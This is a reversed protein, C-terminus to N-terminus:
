HQSARKYEQPMGTPLAVLLHNFDHDFRITVRTTPVHLVTGALKGDHETLFIPFGQNTTGLYKGPGTAKITFLDGQTMGVWKGAYGDSAQACAALLTLALAFSVLGLTRIKTNM